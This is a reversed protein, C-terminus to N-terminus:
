EITKYTISKIKEGGEKLIFEKHKEISKFAEEETSYSYTMSSSTQVRELKDVLINEWTPILRCFKGVSLKKEAFQPTYWIEGNNREEIKIRYQKM